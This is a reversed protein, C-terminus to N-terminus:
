SLWTILHYNMEFHGVEDLWNDSAYFKEMEARAIAMEIEHHMCQKYYGLRQHNLSFVKQAPGVFIDDIKEIGIINVRIAELGKKIKAKVGEDTIGTQKEIDISKKINADNKKIEDNIQAPDRMDNVKHWEIRARQNQFVALEAARKATLQDVFTYYVTEYEKLADNLRAIRQPDDIKELGNREALLMGNFLKCRYDQISQLVNLKKNLKNQKIDNALLHRHEGLEMMGPYKEKIEDIQQTILACKLTRIETMPDKIEAFRETFMKNLELIDSVHMSHALYNNRLTNATTSCKKLGITELIIQNIETGNPVCDVTISPDLWRLMGVDALDEHFQQISQKKQKGNEIASTFM